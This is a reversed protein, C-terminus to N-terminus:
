LDRFCLVVEWFFGVEKNNGTTGLHVIRTRGIRTVAMTLTDFHADIAAFTQAIVAIGAGVTGLDNVGTALGWTQIVTNAVVLRWALEVARTGRSEGACAALEPVIRAVAGRTCRVSGAHVGVNGISGRTTTLQSVM